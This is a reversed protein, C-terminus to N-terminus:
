ALFLDLVPGDNREEQRERAAHWALEAERRKRSARELAAAEEEALRAARREEALRAETARRAAARAARREQMQRRQQEREARAATEASLPRERGPAPPIIGAVRLRHVRREVAKVTIGYRTALEARSLGMEVALVFEGIDYSPRPGRLGM